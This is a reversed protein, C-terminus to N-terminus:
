DSYVSKGIQSRLLHNAGSCPNSGQVKRNVSRNPVNLFLSGFVGLVTYHRWISEFTTTWNGIRGGPVSISHGQKPLVM